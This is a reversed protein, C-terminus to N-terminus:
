EPREASNAAPSPSPRFGQDSSFPFGRQLRPLNVALGSQIDSNSNGAHLQGQHFLPMLGGAANARGTAFVAVPEAGNVGAGRMQDSARRQSEKIQQMNKNKLRSRNLFVCRTPSPLRDICAFPSFEASCPELIM